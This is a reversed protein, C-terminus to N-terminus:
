DTDGRWESRASDGRIEAVVTQAAHEGIGPMTDLLPVAEAVCPTPSEEIATRM